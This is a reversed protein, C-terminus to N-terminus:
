GAVSKECVLNTEENNASTQSFWSACMRCAFIDQFLLVQFHQLTTNSVPFGFGNPKTTTGV